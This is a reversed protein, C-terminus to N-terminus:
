AEEQYPAHEIRVEIKGPQLGMRDVIVERACAVVEDTKMPVDIDPSTQLELLVDVARGHPTVRPTVSVVDALQDIQWALRRSVSDATVQARSGAETHVHLTKIRPPRIEAWLLLGFIVVALLVLLVRGLLSLWFASNELNRLLVGVNTLGRQALAVTDAPFVALVVALVLFLLLLLITVIRNFVNV